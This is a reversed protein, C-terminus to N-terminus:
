KKELVSVSEPDFAARGRKTSRHVTITFLADIISRARGLSNDLIRNWEADVDETTLLDGYIPASSVERLRAEAQLKDKRVSAVLKAYSEPLMEDRDLMGDYRDIKAQCAAVEEAAGPLDGGIDAVLAKRNEPNNFYNVVVSNVHDDVRAMARVVHRAGTPCTYVMYPKGGTKDVRGRIGTGCTGCTAIGSLLYKVKNGQAKRRQPDGLVACAQEYEEVELIPDWAGQYESTKGNPAVHVRVGINRKRLVLEKAKVPVWTSDALALPEKTDKDRKLVRGTGPAPVGERNLTRCIENLSIGALVGVCIRRIVAAEFQNIVERGTPRGKYMPGDYVRDWGYSRPGHSKGDIAATELGERTRFQIKEREEVDMFSKFRLGTRGGLRVEHRGDTYSWLEGGINDVANAVPTINGDRALRSTEWCILIARFRTRDLAALTALMREYGPRGPDGSMDNDSFWDDDDILPWRNDERVRNIARRQTAHDKRMGERDKSLRTYAFVRILRNDLDAVATAPRPLLSTM